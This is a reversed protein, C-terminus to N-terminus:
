YKLRENWQSQCFLAGSSEKITFAFHFLVFFSNIILSASLISSFVFLSFKNIVLINRPISYFILCHNFLKLTFFPNNHFHSHSGTRGIFIHHQSSVLPSSSYKLHLRHVIFVEENWRSTENHALHFLKSICKNIIQIHKRSTSIMWLSPSM